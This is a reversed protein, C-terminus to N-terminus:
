IQLFSCQSTWAPVLLESWCVRLDWAWNSDFIVYTTKISTSNCWQERKKKMGEPRIHERSGWISKKQNYKNCIYVVHVHICLCVCMHLIVQQTWKHQKHTYQKLTVLTCQVVSLNAWGPFLWSEQGKEWGGTAAQLEKNIPPVWWFIGQWM